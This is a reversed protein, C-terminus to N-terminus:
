KATLKDWEQRAREIGWHTLGQAADWNVLRQNSGAPLQKDYSYAGGVTLIAGVIIGIILRM